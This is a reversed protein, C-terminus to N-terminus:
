PAKILEGDRLEVILDPGSLEVAPAGAGAIGTLTKGDAVDPAPVRM